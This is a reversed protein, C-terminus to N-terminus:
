ESKLYLASASYQKKLKLRIGISFIKNADLGTLIDENIKFCIYCLVFYKRPTSIRILM